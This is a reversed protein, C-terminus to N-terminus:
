MNKLNSSAFCSKLLVQKVNYVGKLDEVTVFGDGTKDLKQFAQRILNVRAKSMPPQSYLVNSFHFLIIMKLSFNPM